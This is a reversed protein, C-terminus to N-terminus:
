QGNKAGTLAAIEDLRQPFDDLDHGPLSRLASARKCPRKLADDSGDSNGPENRNLPHPTSASAPRPSVRPYCRRALLARCPAARAPRAHADEARRATAAGTAKADTKVAPGLQDQRM